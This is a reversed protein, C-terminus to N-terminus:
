FNIIFLFILHLKKFIKYFILYFKTFINGMYLKDDEIDDIVEHLRICNIHNIKKM